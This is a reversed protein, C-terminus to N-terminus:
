MFRRTNLYQSFIETRRKNIKQVGKENHIKEEFNGLGTKVIPTPEIKNKLHTTIQTKRAFFEPKPLNTFNIQIKMKRIGRPNNDLIDEMKQKFPPSV